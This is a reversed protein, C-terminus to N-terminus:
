SHAQKKLAAALYLILCSLLYTYIFLIVLLLISNPGTYASSESVYTLPINLFSSVYDAIVASPILMLALPLDVIWSIVKMPFSPDTGM